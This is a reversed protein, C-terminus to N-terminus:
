MGGHIFRAVARGVAEALVCPVGNGVLSFKASLTAEAPLVYDDPVTQLRMAERVSLRRPEWPHLHVERNGFWMTPAYRYRHLRKFSKSRVDGEARTLFKDSRAQFVDQGNAVSTAARGQRWAASVTLEIPLGRPRPPKEGYPTIGPWALREADPHTASPWPFWGGDSALWRGSKLGLARYAVRKRVGIVFLRERLQPAGFHLANLVRMDLLYNGDLALAELQRDLYERHKRTRFLGAVNEMIFFTPSLRCVMDVFSRTLRGNQGSGGNNVGGRSFDPCPPGGVVGFVHPTCGAFARRKVSAATLNTISDVVPEPPAWRRHGIRVGKAGEVFLEALRPDYENTFVTSLGARELGLDLFGGGTFLSIVPLAPGPDRKASPLTM